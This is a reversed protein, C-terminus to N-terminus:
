TEISFSLKLLLRCINDFKNSVMVVLTASKGKARKADEKEKEKEEEEKEGSIECKNRILTKLEISKWYNILKRQNFM